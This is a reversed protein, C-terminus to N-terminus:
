HPSITVRLVAEGPPYYYGDNIPQVPAHEAPGTNQGRQFMGADPGFGGKQNVETGADWVIIRSSIDGSIPRGAEDFLAIAGDAPGYFADNSQMLMTAFSLMDGPNAAVEFEYVKGPWLEEDKAAGVPKYFIGGELVDPHRFLYAQLSRVNGDEALEELGSGPVAPKGPEFLPSGRHYVAYNGHSMGAPWSKSHSEVMADPPSINEIRVTFTTAGKRRRWSDPISDMRGQASLADEAREPEQLPMAGAGGALCLAVAALVVTSRAQSM